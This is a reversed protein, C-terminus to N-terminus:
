VWAIAEDPASDRFGFFFGMTVRERGSVREIAHYQTPDFLYVDGAEPKFRLSEAGDVVATEYGFGGPIKHREDDPKWIRRYLELHGGEDCEQVCVVCSYHSTLANLALVDGAMDRMINDNHLPTEVDDSYIRINHDAYRAGDPEVASAFAALGLVDVLRRRTCRALDIGADATTAAAQAAAAFYAARDGAFKALYPGVTTLRSNSYTTTVAQDFLLLIRDRNRVFDPEPILGKLVVVAHGGSALGKMLGADAAGSPGTGPRHEVITWSM